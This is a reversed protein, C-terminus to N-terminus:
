EVIRSFIKAKKFNFLPPNKQISSLKIQILFKKLNVTNNVVQDVPGFYLDDVRDVLGVDVYDMRVRRNEHLFLKKFM